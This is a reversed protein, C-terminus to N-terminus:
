PPGGIEKEMFLTSHAVRMGARLYLALAGTANESDVGLVAETQGRAELRAFSELLLSLGLGRGRWPKRVSLDDVYGRDPNDFALCTGAVEAGDWAVIWLGTDLGTHAFVHREWEELGLPAFRFHEAFAEEHARHVAAEDRGRRFERVEIGDPWAPRASGERLDIRMRYFRRTETFGREALLDLKESHGEEAPIGLLVRAGGAETRHERSRAEIQALLHASVVRRHPDDPDVNFDGFLDVHPREDWVWAYGATRGGLTEILWAGRELSLRPLQWDALLEDETVDSEGILAIEEARMMNVLAASDSRQPTRCRYGDPLPAAPPEPHEPKSPASM